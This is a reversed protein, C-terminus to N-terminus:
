TQFLGVVLAFQEKLTEIRENVGDLNQERGNSEIDRAIESLETLGLNAAAGKLSHAANMLGQTDGTKMAQELFDIDAQGSEVLIELIELYEETELGLNKALGTIKV